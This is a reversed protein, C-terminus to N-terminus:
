ATSRARTSQARLDPSDGMTVAAQGTTGPREEILFFARIRDTALVEPAEDEVAPGTMAAGRDGTIMRGAAAEDEPAPFVEAMMGAHIWEAVAARAPHVTIWLAAIGDATM